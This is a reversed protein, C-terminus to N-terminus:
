DGCMQRNLIISRELKCFQTTADLLELIIATRRRGDVTLPKTRPRRRERRSSAL